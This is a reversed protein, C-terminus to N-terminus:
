REYEDRPCKDCWYLFPFPASAKADSRASSEAMLFTLLSPMRRSSRAVSTALSFTHAAFVRVCACLVAPGARFSGGHMISVSGEEQRAIM